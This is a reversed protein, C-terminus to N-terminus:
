AAEGTTLARSRILESITMRSARADKKLQALQAPTFRLGVIKSGTQKKAKDITREQAM